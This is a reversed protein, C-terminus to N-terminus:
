KKGIFSKTQGISKADIRVKNNHKDEWLRFYAETQEYPIGVASKSSMLTQGSELRAPYDAIENEGFEKHIPIWLM